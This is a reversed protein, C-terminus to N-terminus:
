PNWDDGEVHPGDSPTVTYPSVLTTAIAAPLLTANNQVDGRPPLATPIVNRGSM